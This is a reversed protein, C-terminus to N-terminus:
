ACGAHSRMQTVFHAAAPSLGQNQRTILHIPQLRISLDVPLVRLVGLRGYHDALSAPMVAVMDSIELLATTVITSATETINLQTTVGAEQLAAEFRIRQPAGPPQLIWEMAMLDGFSVSARAALPHSARTVVVLAEELLPASVYDGESHGQGQTLRGLVLDVEGRALQRIMVNSTDVTVSVAVRPHRRKYEGLMPALLQPIAGPVSGIRLTGQLGSHLAVMEEHMFGFDILMRRAYRVLVEGYPTPAMGRAQREFLPVGFTDEAQQLLKSAAPQSINLAAAARGLNREADLMSLLALQRTRLRLLLSPPPSADSM